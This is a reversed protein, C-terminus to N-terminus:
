VGCRPAAAPAAGPPDPIDPADCLDPPIDFMKGTRVFQLLGEECFYLDPAQASWMQLHELLAPLSQLAAGPRALQLAMKEDAFLTFPPQGRHVARQLAAPQRSRQLTIGERDPSIRWGPFLVELLHHLEARLRPDPGRGRQKYQLLLASKQEESLELADALHELQFERPTRQGSVIKYLTSRDISAKRALEAMTGPYRTVLIKLTQTLESM